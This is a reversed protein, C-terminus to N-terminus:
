RQMTGRYAAESRPDFILTPPERDLDVIFPTDGAKNFIRNGNRSLAIDVTGLRAYDSSVRVVGRDLRTITVGVASRSPGKSDAIVDGFYKGVVLEALDASARAPVQAAAEPEPEAGGAPRDAKTNPAPAAPAPSAPTPVDTRNMSGAYIALGVAVVVAVMAAPLWRRDRVAAPHVGSSAEPMPSGGVATGIAECLAHFGGHSSDGKWGTLDATQRRRFELPLKVSDLAAPILVGREAAVAAETKVWESAISNGSWLVVVCKASELEREIAQDFPQGIVIKRDWWVSWGRAALAKALLAARERDESAYSIFIDAV